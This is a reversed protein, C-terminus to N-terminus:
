NDNWLINLCNNIHEDIEQSLRDLKGHPSKLRTKAPSHFFRFEKLHIFQPPTGIDLLYITM